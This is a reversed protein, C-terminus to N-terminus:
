WAGSTAVVVAVAFANPSIKELFINISLKQAKKKSVSACTGCLKVVSYIPTHVYTHIHRSLSASSQTHLRTEGGWEKRCLVRMPFFAFSRAAKGLRTFSNTLSSPRHPTNTPVIPAVYNLPWSLNAAAASATTAKLQHNCPKHANKNVAKEITAINLTATAAATIQFAILFRFPLLFAFFSAASLCYAFWRMALLPLLM